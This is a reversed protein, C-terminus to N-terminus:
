ELFVFYWCHRYGSKLSEMVSSTRTLMQGSSHALLAVLAQTVAFSPSALAKQDSPDSHRSISGPRRRVKNSDEILSTNLGMAATM